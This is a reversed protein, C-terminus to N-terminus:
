YQCAEATNTAYVGSVVNNHFISGYHAIAWEPSNFGMINVAKREEVGLVHLAKSFQMVDQQFQKWTWTLQKKNRMVHVAPHDARMQAAKQFVSPLTEPKINASMGYAAM